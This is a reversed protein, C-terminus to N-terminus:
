SHEAGEQWPHAHPQPAVSDLLACDGSELDCALLELSGRINNISRISLPNALTGLEGKLLEAQLEAIHQTSEDLRSAHGCVVAMAMLLEIRRGLRQMPIQARTLELQYVVNLLLFSWGCRRLGRESFRLYEGLRGPMQRYRPLLHTPVLRTPLSIIDRLGTKIIWGALKWVGPNVVLKALAKLTRLPYRALSAVGLKHICQEDPLPSGDARTNAERLVSLLGQLYNGTFEATLDKVMGLRILDDEGEVIGFAHIVPRVATIRSDNDFSRGGIVRECAVLSELASRASASKTLDRLGALDAGAADQALALHSLSQATLAGGLIRAIGLRPLEHKFVKGGVGDRQQAYHFADSAMMRQFGSCMAALMCRGMRLCYFLVEVGDGQIEQEFPIPFNRFSL